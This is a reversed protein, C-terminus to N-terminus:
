SNLFVKVTKSLKTLAFHLAAKCMKYLELHVPQLELLVRLEMSMQM